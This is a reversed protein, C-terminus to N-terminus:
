LDVPPANGQIPTMTHSRGREDEVNQVNSNGSISSPELPSARMTRMAGTLREVSGESSSALSNTSPSERPGPRATRPSLSADLNRLVEPNQELQDRPIEVQQKIVPSTDFGTSRLLKFESANEADSAWELGDGEVPSVLADWASGVDEWNRDEGQALPHERKVLGAELPPPTDTWLTDWNIDKFFQHSRLAQM